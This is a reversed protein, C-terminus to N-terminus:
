QSSQIIFDSLNVLSGTTTGAILQGSDLLLLKRSEGSEIFNLQEIVPLKISNLDIAVRWLKLLGDRGLSIFRIEGPKSAKLMILDYILGAHASVTAIEKYGRVKRIEIEGHQTASLIYNGDSSIVVKEIMNNSSIRQTNRIAKETYGRLGFHKNRDYEGSYADEQYYKWVSLYGDSDGSFFVRGDPHIAVSTIPSNHFFYRELALQQNNISSSPTDKLYNWNYVRSDMGGMLLSQRDSNFAMTAIRSKIRNLQFKASCDSIDYVVVRGSYSLAIFGYTMDFASSDFGQEFKCLLSNRELSVDSLFLKANKKLVLIKSTSPIEVLSHIEISGAQQSNLETNRTKLFTAWDIPEINISGKDRIDILDLAGKLSSANCANFAIIIFILFHLLILTNRSNSM